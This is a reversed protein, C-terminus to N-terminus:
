LLFIQAQQHRGAHHQRRLVPRQKGTFLFGGASIEVELATLSNWYSMWGHAEIAENVVLMAKADVM